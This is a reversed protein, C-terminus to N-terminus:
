ITRQIYRIPSQPPPSSAWSMNVAFIGNFRAVDISCAIQAPDPRGNVDINAWTLSVDPSVGVVDISNNLAAAVGAMGTGHGVRDQPSQGDGVDICRWGFTWKFDPHGTDIGSDLIALKVGAGTSHQWAAPAQVRQIGWPVVQQDYTGPFIPEIYDISPHARLATVLAPPVKAVIQPMTTRPEWLIAVDLSRLYRKASRVADASILVRGLNDVGGRTGVEKFGIFVRGDAREVARTLDADTMRKWPTNERDSPEHTLVTARQGVSAQVHTSTHPTLPETRDSCGVLGAGLVAFMGRIPLKMLYM